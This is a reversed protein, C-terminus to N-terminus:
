FITSLLLSQSASLELHPKWLVGEGVGPEPLPPLFIVLDLSPELLGHKGSVTPCAPVCLFQGHVHCCACARNFSLGSFLGLLSFFVCVVGGRASSSRVVSLQQFLSNEKLKHGWTPQDCQPAPGM